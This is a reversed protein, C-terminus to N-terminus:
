QANVDPAWDERWGPFHRYGSAVIRITLCPYVGYAVGWDSQSCCVECVDRPEDESRSIYRAGSIPKHTDLLLLESECRAITDQPQNLVIHDADEREWVGGGDGYNLTAVRRLVPVEQPEPGDWEVSTEGTPSGHIQWADGDGDQGTNVWPGDSAAEATAKRALVQSRLWSSLDREPRDSM